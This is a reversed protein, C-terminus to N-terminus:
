TEKIKLQQPEDKEITRTIAYYYQTNLGAEEKDEKIYNKMEQQAMDLRYFEDFIQGTTAEVIQYIYRM